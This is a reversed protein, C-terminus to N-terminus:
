DEVLMDGQKKWEIGDQVWKELAHVRELEVGFEKALKMIEKQESESYNNDVMCLQLAERLFCLAEQRSAFTLLIEETQTMVTPLIAIDNEPIGLGRAADIFFTQEEPSIVGDAKSIRILGKVFNMKAETTQFLQEYYM